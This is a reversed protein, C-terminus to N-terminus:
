LKNELFRLFIGDTCRKSAVVIRSTCEKSKRFIFDSSRSPDIVTAMVGHSSQAPLTHVECDEHKLRDTYVNIFFSTCFQSISIVTSVSASLLVLYYELGLVPPLDVSLDSHNMVTLGFSTLPAQRLRCFASTFLYTTCVRIEILTTLMIFNFYKFLLAQM